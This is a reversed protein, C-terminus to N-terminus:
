NKAAATGAQGTIAADTRSAASPSLAARARRVLLEVPVGNRRGFEDARDAGM